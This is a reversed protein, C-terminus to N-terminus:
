YREITFTSLGGDIDVTVTHIAADYDKSQYAGDAVEKLGEFNRASLGGDFNLAIGSEKPIRLTTTSAGADLTVATNKTLAGLTLTTRSAGAEVQLDTLKVRSLDADISSAGANITLALPLRETLTVDWINEWTSPRWSRDSRSSLEIEQTDGSRRNQEEIRAGKGTLGAEVVKSTDSSTIAMTSAGAQLTIDARTVNKDARVAAHQSVQDENGLTYFGAGVWIVMAISALTFIISLMKWLWHSTALVSFGVAVILLPWLRWLDSWNVDVAGLNGLLLLTGLAILLLGWFIADVSWASTRKPEPAIRQDTTAVKPKATSTSEKDIRPTNDTTTKKASM